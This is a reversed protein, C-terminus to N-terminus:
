LHYDSWYYFKKCFIVIWKIYRVIKNGSNISVASTVNESIINTMNTPITNRVNVSVIDTDNIVEDCVILSTDAM